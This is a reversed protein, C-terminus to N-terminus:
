IEPNPVDLLNLLEGWWQRLVVFPTDLSAAERVGFSLVYEDALLICFQIGSTGQQVTFQLTGGELEAVAREGLAAATASVAGVRDEDLHQDHTSDHFALVLGDVAVVGMYYCTPLKTVLLRLQEQILDTISKRHVGLHRDLALILKPMNSQYREESSIDLWQANVLEFPVATAGNGRTLLPFIRIERLRAYELERDVWESAKADPSLIAVMAGSTEIAHQIAIKWARTGPTLQADTWILFDKDSLFQKVRELVDMDQRSYSIFIHKPSPMSKQLNM